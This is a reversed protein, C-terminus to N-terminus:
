AEEAMDLADIMNAVRSSSITDGIKKSLSLREVTQACQSAIASLEKATSEQLKAPTINMLAEVATSQMMKTTILRRDEDSITCKRQPDYRNIYDYVTPTKIKLIGAIRTPGYGMASLALIIAARDPIDEMLMVSSRLEMPSPLNLDPIEFEELRAVENPM